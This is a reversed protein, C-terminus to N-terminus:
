SEVAPDTLSETVRIRDAPQIKYSRILDLISNISRPLDEGINVLTQLLPGLLGSPRGTGPAPWAPWKSYVPLRGTMKKLIKLLFSWKQAPFTTIFLYLPSIKSAIFILLSKKDNQISVTMVILINHDSVTSANPKPSSSGGRFQFVPPKSIHIQLIM